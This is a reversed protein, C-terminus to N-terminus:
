KTLLFNGEKIIMLQNSKAGQKLIEFNKCVKIEVFEKLLFEKVREYLHKEYIKPTLEYLYVAKAEKMKRVSDKVKFNYVDKSIELIWCCNKTIATTKRVRGCKMLDAEGFISNQTVTGIEKRVHLFLNDDLKVQRHNLQSLFKLNNDVSLYISNEGKERFKLLATRVFIDPVKCYLKMRIFM